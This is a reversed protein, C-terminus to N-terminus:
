AGAALVDVVQLSTTSKVASGGMINGVILVRYTANVEQSENRNL